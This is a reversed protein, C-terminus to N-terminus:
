SLRSCDKKSSSLQFKVSFYDGTFVMSDEFEEQTFGASKLISIAKQFSKNELSEENDYDDKWQEWLKEEELEIVEKM